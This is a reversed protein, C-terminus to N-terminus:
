RKIEIEKTKESERKSDKKDKTGWFHQFASAISGQGLSSPPTFPPHSTNSPVSSIAERM